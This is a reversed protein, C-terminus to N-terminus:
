SAVDSQSTSANSLKRQKGPDGGGGNPANTGAGLQNGAGDRPLQSLVTNVLNDRFSKSLFNYLIPNAVCHFLSLSQVVSFSFYLVEMTNCSFIFPDIDDVIMLFLVFHYPLWCLVFVLSYVHVLWVDRRGQVNQAARVARAILVNCTIIVAVPGLFQFVLCLFGVSVFWETFNHEPLMYCGPVDWELLDVHVNELLALFLSLVWIGGCLVWRRRGLVPFFAPFSPRTLSLYREVTMLALFFSSNYFNVAYVLHTVKCLFRGWLWVNGMTVEMMFFPLIVIVMLDSLSVNLICFLVGNASHRRRWNVWIVLVNELLGVMFIFLYILFLAIRRYDGVSDLNITCHIFWLTDNYLDLTANHEHASM